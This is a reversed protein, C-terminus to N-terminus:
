ELNSLFIILSVHVFRFPVTALLYSLMIADIDDLFSYFLKVGCTGALHHELTFGSDWVALFYGALGM